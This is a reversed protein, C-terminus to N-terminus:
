GNESTLPLAAVFWLGLSVEFDSDGELEVEDVATCKVEGSTREMEDFKVLGEDEESVGSGLEIALLPPREPLVM